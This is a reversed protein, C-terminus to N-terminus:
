EPFVSNPCSNPEPVAVRTCGPVFMLVPPVALRGTILTMSFGENLAMVAEENSAELM